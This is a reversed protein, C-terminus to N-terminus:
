TTSRGSVEYLICRGCSGISLKLKFWPKRRKAEEDKVPHLRFRGKTDYLLRFNKNTKPILVVDM